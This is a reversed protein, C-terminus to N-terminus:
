DPRRPDKGAAHLWSELIARSQPAVDLFIV